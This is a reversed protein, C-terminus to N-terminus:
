GPNLTVRRVRVTLNELPHFFCVFRYQKRYSETFNLRLVRVRSSFVWEVSAQFPNYHCVWRTRCVLRNNEVFTARKRGRTNKKERHNRRNLFHPARECRLPKRQLSHRKGPICVFVCVSVCVWEGGGERERESVCVWVPYDTFRHRPVTCKAARMSNLATGSVM